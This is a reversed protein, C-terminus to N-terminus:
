VISNKQLEPLDLKDSVNKLSNPEQLRPVGASSATSVKFKKQKIGFKEGWAERINKNRVCYFLFIFFGQLTSLVCFIYQFAVIDNSVVLFGFVWTLGLLLAFAIIIRLREKM